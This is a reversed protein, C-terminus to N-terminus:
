YMPHGHGYPSPTMTVTHLPPQSLRHGRGHQYDLILPLQPVKDPGIQFTRAQDYQRRSRTGLRYAQGSARRRVQDNEVEPQGVDRALLNGALERRGRRDQYQGRFAGLFVPDAPEFEAGVVVHRLREAGTLQDQPDLRDEPAAARGRILLEGAIAAAFQDDVLRPADRRDAARLGLERGGLPADQDRQGGHGPPDVRPELQDVPHAAVLEVSILAGDVRVDLVQAALDLLIRGTGADDPGDQATAVPQSQAAIVSVSPRRGASTATKEDASTDASAPRCRSSRALAIDTAAPAAQSLSRVGM